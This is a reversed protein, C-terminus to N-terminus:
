GAAPLVFKVLVILGFLGGEAVAVGVLMWRPKPAPAFLGCVLWAPACLPMLGIRADGLLAWNGIALRMPGSLLLGVPGTVAFLVAGWALVPWFGASARLWYLALGLPALAALSFVGLGLIMDGFAYMGSSAQAAAPDEFHQRIAVALGAAGAALVFGAFLIGVKGLPHLSRM